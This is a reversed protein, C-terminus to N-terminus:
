QNLSSSTFGFFFTMWGPVPTVTVNAPQSAKDYGVLCRHIGTTVPSKDCIIIVWNNNHDGLNCTSYNWSPLFLTKTIIPCQSGAATRVFVILNHHFRIGEGRIGASIQIYQNWGLLNIICGQFFFIILHGRVASALQGPPFDCLLWVAIM